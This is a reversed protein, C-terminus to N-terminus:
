LPPMKLTVEYKGDGDSINLSYRKGFILDLRKRVNALGLGGREQTDGNKSNVCRFVIENGEYDLWVHIFSPRQYSVGHKFANELFPAIILPPIMLQPVQEPLNFRIDVLSDYRMRMLAAYQTLFDMARPLSVQQKEGEYLVYRMLRSLKVISDKAKAPDIDVLAHINNLTNMFFHPNIQHKLYELEQSLNERELEALRQEDNRTRYYNKIGLNAGMAFVVMFFSMLEHSQVVPRHPPREGDIRHPMPRKTGHPPGGPHRTCQLGQFALVLVLAVAAYLHVNRKYVLIPAVVFNHVVFLLLFPLIRGWVHLVDGWRFPPADHMAAHAWLSLIPAVMLIVWLVVYVLTEQKTDKTKFWM